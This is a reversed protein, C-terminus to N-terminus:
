IRLEGAADEGVTGVVADYSVNEDHEGLDAKTAPTFIPEPLRDTRSCGGPLAVGCVAGTGPLRGDRVRGPVRAGRVRGAGHGATASWPAGACRPPYTPRSCTTPVIGDLQDFWWLTMRTLIGGKDPIPTDLIHDFASIRDSAVM